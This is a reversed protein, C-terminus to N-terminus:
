LEAFKFLNSQTTFKEILLSLASVDNFSIGNVLLCELTTNQKMSEWVSQEASTFKFNNYGVDLLKLAPHNAVANIFLPIHTNKVINVNSAISLAIQKPTL